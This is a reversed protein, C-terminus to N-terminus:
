YVVYESCLAIDRKIRDKLDNVDSFQIENRLKHYLHVTLTKGYLNKHFKLIFAEIEVGGVGFTPRAGINVLSKKKNVTAIYVGHHPILKHPNISLNATPFGIVRGAKRGHIVKGTLVYTHGLLRIAKKFDGQAVLERINSSKVIVGKIKYPRVVKVAFGYKRGLKRLSSVNGERKHGFAYDYGVFVVSAKLQKVIYKEVFSEYSLKQLHKNFKFVKIKPVNFQKFLKKREDLTTLLKLGREPIIFQQPHPDFTTIICQFNHKKSYSQADKIIRQHGLHIGDFTGLAVVSTKEQNTM